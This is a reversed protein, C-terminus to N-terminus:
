IIGCSGLLVEISHLAVALECGSLSRTNETTDKVFLPGHILPVESHQREDCTVLWLIRVGFNIVM